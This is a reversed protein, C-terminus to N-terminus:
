QQRTGGTVDSDKSFILGIGSLIGTVSAMVIGQDVTGSKFAFYLGVLGGVIATIGMSTTKWSGM